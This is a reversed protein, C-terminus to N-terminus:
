HICSNPCLWVRRSLVHVHNPLVVFSHLECQEPDRYRIAEVVMRAIEPQHLYRPRNTARDLLRDMAVFARGSAVERPFWRGAPLSGALRWTIFM